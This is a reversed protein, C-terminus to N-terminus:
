QGARGDGSIPVNFKQGTFEGPNGTLYGLCHAHYEPTANAPIEVSARGRRVVIRPITDRIRAAEAALNHLIRHIIAWEHAPNAALWEPSNWWEILKATEYTGDASTSHFLWQWVQTEGDQKRVFPIAKHERVGVSQLATALLVAECCVSAPNQAALPIFAGGPITQTESM